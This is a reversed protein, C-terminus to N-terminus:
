IGCGMEAPKPHFWAAIETVASSLSGEPFVAVAWVYQLVTSSTALSPVCPSISPFPALSFVPTVLELDKFQIAKLWAGLNLQIQIQKRANIDELPVTAVIIPKERVKLSYPVGKKKFFFFLAPPPTWVQM